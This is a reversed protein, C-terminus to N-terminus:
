RLEREGLEQVPRANSGFRRPFAAIRAEDETRPRKLVHWIVGETCPPTTLSGDYRYAAHDKPLLAAPDFEKKLPASGKAKPAGKWVPAMAVSAEGETFMVGVVALKGAKNKHVLHVEMPFPDGAITHESPTHVHFQVLDYRTGDVVIFSGAALDVQLTHGNDVVTAATPKYVFIVEPAESRRPLIDIPSQRHGVACTEFAPDLHSWAAPGEAGEYAWHVNAAPAKAVAPPEDAPAAPEDTHESREGHEGHGDEGAGADDRKRWDPRPREDSAARESDEGDAEAEDDHRGRGAKAKDGKAEKDAKGKGKAKGKKGHDDEADAEDEEAHKPAPRLGVPKGTLDTVALAVEDLRKELEAVKKPQDLYKCGAVAVLLLLAYRRV